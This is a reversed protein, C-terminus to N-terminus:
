YGQGHHGYHGHRGHHHGSGHRGHHGGEPSGYGYGDYGGSGSGGHQSGRGGLLGAAGGLLGGSSGHQGHGGYSSQGHHGGSGQGHGQRGELKHEIMNAAIAGVTGGLVTGLKGKGLKHGLFGGAGGGILTAGLGREGDQGEGPGAYPGRGRESAAASEYGYPDASHPRPLPSGSASSRDNTPYPASPLAVDSHASGPRAYQQPALYQQSHTPPQEPAYTPQAPYPSSSPSGYSQQPPYPSHSPSPAYQPQSPYPQQVPPPYSGANGGTGTGYYEAASM